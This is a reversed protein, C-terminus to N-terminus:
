NMNYYKIAKEKLPNDSWEEWQTTQPNYGCKLPKSYINKPDSLFARCDTCVHRFECTKCENIEDKKIAALNAFQESNLLEKSIFDIKTNKINGFSLNLAPCNKINGNRDVALKQNLCSNFNLSELFKDQNLSFYKQSVNGCFTFDEFEKTLHITSFFPVQFRNEESFPSGYLIVKKFRPNKKQLGEFLTKDHSSDYKTIIEITSLTKLKFLELIVELKIKNLSFYTVIHVSKCSTTAALHKIKKLKEFDFYDLEVIIDNLKNATKYSTDLKPFLEFEELDCYFGFNKNILFEISEDITAIDEELFEKKISNISTKNNLREIIEAIENPLIFVENKQLDCITSRSAGKVLLCNAFLQFYDKKKM